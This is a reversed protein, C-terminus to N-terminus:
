LRHRLARRARYCGAGPGARSATTSSPTVPLTLPSTVTYTVPAGGPGINLASMLGAPGAHVQFAVVRHATSVSSVQGPSVNQM